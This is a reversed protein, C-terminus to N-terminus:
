TKEVKDDLIEKSKKTSIGKEDFTMKRSNLVAVLNIEISSYKKLHASQKEIQKLLTSGILGTGVIFVNLTKTDSLFFSQHLANLAKNLDAKHIVVSINLESSGQATAVAS